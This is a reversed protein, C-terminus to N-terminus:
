NPNFYQMKPPSTTVFVVFPLLYFTQELLFGQSSSSTITQLTSALLSFLFYKFHHCSRSTLRWDAGKNRRLRLLGHHLRLWHMPHSPCPLCAAMLIVLVQGMLEYFTERPFLTQSQFKNIIIPHRKEVLRRSYIKKKM